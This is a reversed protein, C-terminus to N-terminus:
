CCERGACAQMMAREAGLLPPAPRPSRPRVCLRGALGVALRAAVLLLAAGALAALTGVSDLGPSRARLRSRCNSRLLAYAAFRAPRSLARRRAARRQRSRREATMM